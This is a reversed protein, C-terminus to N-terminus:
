VLPSIIKDLDPEGNFLGKEQYFRALLRGSAYLAPPHEATRDFLSRASETSYLTFGAMMSRAEAPTVGSREAVIVFGAEQNAQWWELARDHAHILAVWSSPALAVTSPRAVLCDVLLGPFDHSSFLLRAGQSCALELHAGWTHGADIEGRQLAEPVHEGRLNILVVDDEVMDHAALIQRILVHPYTLLSLALRKGSLEKVSGIEPRCVVGDVGVSLDSPMLLRLDLGRGVMLLTDALSQFNGDIEGAALLELTQDYEEVDVIEFETPLLDLAEVLHLPFLGAWLTRAIRFRPVPV